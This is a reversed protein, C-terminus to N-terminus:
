TWSSPQTQSRYSSGFDVIKKIRWNLTAASKDLHYYIINKFLRPIFATASGAAQPIGAAGQSLGEVGLGPVRLFSVSICLSTAQARVPPATPAHVRVCAAMCGHHSCRVTLATSVGGRDGRDASLASCLPRHSRRPTPPPNKEETNESLPTVCAGSM